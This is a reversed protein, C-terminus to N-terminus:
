YISLNVPMENRYRMIMEDAFYHVHVVKLVSNDNHQADQTIDIIGSNYVTQCSSPNIQRTLVQEIRKAFDWALRHADQYTTAETFVSVTLGYRVRYGGGLTYPQDEIVNGDILITPYRQIVPPHGIYINHLPQGSLTKQITATTIDTTIPASLFLQNDPKVIVARPYAEYEGTAQSDYLIIEDGDDYCATDTVTIYEDGAQIPQTTQIEAILNSQLLAQIAEMLGIINSQYAMTQYEVNATIMGEAQRM